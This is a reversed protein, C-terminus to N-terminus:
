ELWENECIDVNVGLEERIERVGQEKTEGALLHGAASIDLLGPSDEKCEARKQFIIYNENKRRRVLWCQFTQHWLNLKHVNTKPEVYLFNFDSDFVDIYEEM